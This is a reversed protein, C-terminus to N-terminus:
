VGVGLSELIFLLVYNYYVMGTLVPSSIVIKLPFDKFRLCNKCIMLISLSEVIM